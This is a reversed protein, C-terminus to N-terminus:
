KEALSNTKKKIDKENMKKGNSEVNPFLCIKM